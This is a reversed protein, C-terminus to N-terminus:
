FLMKLQPIVPLLFLFITPIFMFIFIVLVLNSELRESRIKLLDRQNNRIVRSLDKLVKGIPNGIVESQILIKIITKFDNCFSLKAILHYAETKSSGEFIKIQAKKFLKSIECKYNESIYNLAENLSLGAKILSSLIDIIDPLEREIKRSKISIRSRIIQSPIFYVIVTGIISYYILNKGFFFGFVIFFILFSLSFIIKLLFLGEISKIKVGLIAVRNQEEFLLKIDDSLRVRNFKKVANEARNEFTNFVLRVNKYNFNVLLMFTFISVLIATLITLLNM